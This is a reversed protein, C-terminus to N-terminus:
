IFSARHPPVNDNIVDLGKGNGNGIENGSPMIGSLVQLLCLDTDELMKTGVDELRGYRVHVAISKPKMRGMQRTTDMQGQKDLQEEQGQILSSSSSSIKDEM